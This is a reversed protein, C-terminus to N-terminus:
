RAQEKPLMIVTMELGNVLSHVTLGEEYFVYKTLFRMVRLNEAMTTVWRGPTGVWNRISSMIVKGRVCGRCM